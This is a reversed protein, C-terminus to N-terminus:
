RSRAADYLLMEARARERGEAERAAWERDDGGSRDDVVEVFRLRVDGLLQRSQRAVPGVGEHNEVLM